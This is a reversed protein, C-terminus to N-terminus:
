PYLMVWVPPKQGARGHDPGWGVERLSKKSKADNLMILTGEYFYGNGGEVWEQIGVLERKNHYTRGTREVKTGGLLEIVKDVAWDSDAYQVKFQVDRVLATRSMHPGFLQGPELVHFCTQDPSLLIGSGDDAKVIRENVRNGPALGGASGGGSSGGIHCIPGKYTAPNYPAPTPM